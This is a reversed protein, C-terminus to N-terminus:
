NENKETEVISHTLIIDVAIDGLLATFDAKDDESLRNVDVDEPVSDIEYTMKLVPNGDDMKFSVTTYHYELGVWKEDLLRIRAFPEDVHTGALIVYKHRVSM